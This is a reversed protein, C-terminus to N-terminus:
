RKRERRRQLRALAQATTRPYTDLELQATNVDATYTMAWIRFVTQGDNSSANLADPYSEVGRVRILEGPEIEFPQVMRGTQLDRIPRAVNLTGANPPYKHEALFNQGIRTAAASTGIENSVDLIATRSLGADDLLPCAGSVETVRQLGRESVWRVAVRNYLETTTTPFDGGDELNAEYRVSTPWLEWSFSYGNGTVDPGTTWRYAPELMMLDDLVERASIGDPYSLQDIAYSASTDITANPGDYQDLLRGLLDKVVEHALITDATYGTTIDSGSADVLMTRQVINYWEFWTNETAAVSSTSRACLLSLQNQGNTFNTVVVGSLDAAATSATQSAAVTGADGDTRCRMRLTFNADTVGCDLTAKVRALKMGAQSVRRSIWGGSWSTGVTKGDDAQISLTPLGATGREDNTTVLGKTSNNGDRVFSEQSTDVYVLATNRDSAHMAPGLATTTWKQGDTSATRGPDTVRGEAIVVASRGDTVRVKDFATLAFSSLPASLQLTINAVGGVAEKRFSLGEVKLTLHDNGISVALPVNLTM